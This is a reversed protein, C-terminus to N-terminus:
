LERGNTKLLDQYADLQRTTRPGCVLFDARFEEAVRNVRDAILQTVHNPSNRDVSALARGQELAGRMAIKFRSKSDAVLGPHTRALMTEVMIISVVNSSNAGELLHRWVAVDHVSVGFTEVTFGDQSVEEAFRDFCIATLHCVEPNHVWVV